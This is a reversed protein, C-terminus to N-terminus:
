QSDIPAGSKMASVVTTEHRGSLKPTGCGYLVVCLTALITLLLLKGNSLADVHHPNSVRTDFGTIKFRVSPFDRTTM